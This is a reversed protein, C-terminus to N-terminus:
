SKKDEPEEEAEEGEAAKEGEAVEEEGEVAEEAPVAEELVRPALVAAITRDPETLITVGAPAVLEQVHVSDGINLATVDITLEEPMELALCEVEVERLQHDLVGGQIVGEPQGKLSVPVHATIREDLRIRQFDAHLIDGRVPHHQVFKILAPGSLEPQDEVQLQVVHETARGHVVSVFERLDIMVHTAEKGGGYVVGPLAGTQRLRRATSKGGAERTKAKLEQLEM